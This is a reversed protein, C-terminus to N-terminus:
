RQLGRGFRIGLQPIRLPFGRTGFGFGPHFTGPPPQRERQGLDAELHVIHREGREHRSAADPQGAGGFSFPFVAHHDLGVCDPRVPMACQTLPLGGGRRVPINRGGRLFELVRDLDLDRRLRVDLDGGACGSVNRPVFGPLSVREEGPPTDRVATCPRRVPDELTPQQHDAQAFRRQTRQVRRQM